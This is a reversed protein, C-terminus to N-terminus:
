RVEVPCVFVRDKIEATKGRIEFSGYLRIDESSSGAMVRITGPEVVLRLDGDHFALQDVPLLFIVERTEGPQLSLRIFGRLEKVPRPFSAFEDRVYLQVVEDGARNGSNQVKLAIDVTEGAKVSQQAIRLDSYAFTTYSLGFGFPFLASAKQNVYDGYINSWQGSPKYNYFVPVQGASRPVSLPLRGGPNIEGFLTDVVARAGEEGPIWAELIASAPEVLDPM